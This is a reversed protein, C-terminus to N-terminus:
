PKILLGTAEFAQRVAEQAWTKAPHCSVEAGLRGHLELLWRQLCVAAAGATHAHMGWEVLGACPLAVCRLISSGCQLQRSVYQCCTFCCRHCLSM